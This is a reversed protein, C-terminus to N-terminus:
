GVELKPLYFRICGGGAAKAQYLAIDARQLLEEPTTGDSPYSAIGISASVALDQGHVMFGRSLAEDIEATLKAADGPAGRKQVMVFEDGGTRALLDTQRLCTGLRDAIQRLFEDGGCHGVQDNIAKFRDVDVYFLNFQCVDQGSPITAQELVQQLLARNGVGTLVDHYALFRNHQEAERLDNIDTSAGFWVRPGAGGDVPALPAARTQFWRQVGDARRLRHEVELSGHTAAGHWASVTVAQDDPHVVARWGQGHSDQEQQGTYAIWQPGAWDWDGNDRSRWVLQPITEALMRFHEDSPGSPNGMIGVGDTETPARSATREAMDDAAVQRVIAAIQAGTGIFSIPGDYDIANQQMGRPKLGPDLVMTLGKAAHIAALGRSGDDLSGSLVIGITRSGARVALSKFLTDITRNRFVHNRGPVLHAQQNDMLTLHGDPEGIYCTGCELVEAENAVLVPMDCSRALIDRLFSIKDSPRHLVVMIVAPLSGGLGQLLEKIDDLGEHGSAGICVFPFHSSDTM